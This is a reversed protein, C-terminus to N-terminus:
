DSRVGPNSVAGEAASGFDRAYKALVGGEYAPDPREWDARRDALESEDVAVSLERNPIDVTVEDGDEVLGIPGGVFAEPAVHGVM